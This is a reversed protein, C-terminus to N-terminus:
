EAWALIGMMVLNVGPILMLLAWWGPKNRAEAIKWWWWTVIALLALAGIVPIWSLFIILLTWWPIKAIQTMLYLNGIPVWALWANPTNTKKAISMLVLASYVYFILFIVSFIALSGAIITWLAASDLNGTTTTTVDYDM